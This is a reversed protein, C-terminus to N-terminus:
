RRPKQQAPTNVRFIDDLMHTYSLPHIMPNCNAELLFIDDNETVVADLTFLVHDRIEDPIAKMLIPGMGILQTRLKESQSQFKSRDALSVADFETAYRYALKIKQGDPPISDASMGQWSLYAECDANIEFSSDFSGRKTSVIEKVSRRGDGILYRPPIRELFRPTGNWYWVKIADGDVFQECFAGDGMSPALEGFQSRSFPGRIGQGFSGLREKIIFDTSPVEGKLWYAPTPLHNEDCYNKFVLKDSAIPWRKLTYPLWGVFSGDQGMTNSYALGSATYIQFRPTLTLVQFNFDVEMIFTSM